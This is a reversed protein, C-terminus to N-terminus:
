KIKSDKQKIKADRHKIKADRQKRKADIGCEYATDWCNRFLLFYNDSKIEKSEKLM